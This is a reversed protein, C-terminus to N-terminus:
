AGSKGRLLIQAALVSRRKSIIGYLVSSLPPLQRGTAVVWWFWQSYCNFTSHYCLNNAPTSSRRPQTGGTLLHHSLHAPDIGEAVGVIALEPRVHGAFEGTLDPDM